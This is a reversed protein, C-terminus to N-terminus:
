TIFTILVYINIMVMNLRFNYLEEQNILFLVKIVGVVFFGVISVWITFALLTYICGGTIVLIVMTEIAGSEPTAQNPNSNANNRKISNQHDMQANRVNNTDSPIGKDILLNTAGILTNPEATEKVNDKSSKKRSFIGM